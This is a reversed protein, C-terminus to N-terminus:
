PSTLSLAVCWHWVVLIWSVNVIFGVNLRLESVLGLVLLNYQMVVLFHFALLSIKRGM